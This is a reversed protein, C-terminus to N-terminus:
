LSVDPAGKRAILRATHRAIMLDEDTRLVRVTVAGGERSIVPAHALNRDPDLTIGLFDLGACIRERVPAAAEGIGGTFVLTDLGGLVAALAGISKKAAYCFSGVAEGAGGDTSERALLDRM